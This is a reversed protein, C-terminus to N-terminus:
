AYFSDRDGVVIFSVVVQTERAAVSAPKVEATDLVLPTWNRSRGGMVVSSTRVRFESYRM